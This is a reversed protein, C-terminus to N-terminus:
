FLFPIQFICFYLFVFFAITLGLGFIWHPRIIKSVPEAFLKPMVFYLGIGVCLAQLPTLMLGDMLAGIKVLFVPRIGFSFVIIMNTIMFLVLFFHFQTKWRYRSSLQPTCIRFADALLRPWGAMQGILTSLMAAAGGLLFIFGGTKGWTSSFLGSLSLAVDTGEPMLQQKGLIGAGAILFAGTVILGIIMALSADLYVLRFWGKLKHADSVSLAALKKTDASQGFKNKDANGYGAGIIWYTYWVQSAFGGAGWGILPLIERWPNTDLGQQVAWAPIEPLSPILGRLLVSIDPFVHFAVYLVGLIIISILISMVIKLRDFVGSWVVGLAFISALWGAWYSTIPPFLSHLFIGAASALSGMAIAGSITQAVLIIWVAWNRPGPMRAFMDIMGEGTATTYRAGSMGIWYKLFVGAFIAWFVSTGLIAGTRTALIVEGSGIYEACWVLSPGLLAFFALGRPPSSLEKM